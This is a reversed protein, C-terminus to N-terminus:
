HGAWCCHIDNNASDSVRQSVLEKLLAVIEGLCQVFYFCYSGREREREKKLDEGREWM